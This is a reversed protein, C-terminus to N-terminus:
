IKFTEILSVKPTIETRGGLMNMAKNVITQDKFHSMLLRRADEVNVTQKFNFNAKSSGFGPWSSMTNAKM